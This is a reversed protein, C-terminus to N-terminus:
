TTRKLMLHEVTAVSALNTERAQAAIARAQSPRLAKARCRLLAGEGERTVFCFSIIEAGGSQLLRMIEPWATENAIVFTMDHSLELGPLAWGEDEDQIIAQDSRLATEGAM